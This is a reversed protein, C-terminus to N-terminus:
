GALACLLLALEVAIESRGRGVAGELDAPAPEHLTSLRPWPQDPGRRPFPPAPVPPAADILDALALLGGLGDALVHDLVIVLAVRGPALGTVFM